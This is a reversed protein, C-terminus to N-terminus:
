NIQVMQKINVQKLQTILDHIFPPLLVSEYLNIIERHTLDEYNKSRFYNICM